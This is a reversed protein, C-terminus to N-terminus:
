TPELGTSSVMIILSLYFLHSITAAKRWFIKGKRLRFEAEHTRMYVPRGSSGTSGCGNLREEWNARQHQTSRARGGKSYPHTSRFPAQARKLNSAVRRIDDSSYRDVPERLTGTRSVAHRTIHRM